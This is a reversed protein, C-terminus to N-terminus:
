NAASKWTIQAYASRQTLISGIEAHRPQLVNQGALSLEVNRAHWGFRADVTGYSKTLQSPLAAVYRYTPDFEFGGPCVSFRRPPQSM